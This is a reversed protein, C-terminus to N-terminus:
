GSLEAYFIPLHSSKGGLRFVKWLTIGLLTLIVQFSALFAFEQTESVRLYLGTDKVLGDPSEAAFKLGM